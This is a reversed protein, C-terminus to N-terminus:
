QCNIWPGCDFVAGFVLKDKSLVGLTTRVVGLLVRALGRHRDLNRPHTRLSLAPEM